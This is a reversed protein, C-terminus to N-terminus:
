INIIMEGNMFYFYVITKGFYEPFILNYLELFKIFIEFKQCDSTLM